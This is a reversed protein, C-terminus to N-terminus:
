KSVEEEESKPDESGPQEDDDGPAAGERKYSALAILGLDRATQWQDPRLLPLIDEWHAQLVSNTGGRSWLDSLAARIQEHTKAGAFAIRWKDREGQFRNKMTASALGKCEDAIAGFRHKLAAHISRVFHKEAEHLTEIMAILGSREEARLAGLTDKPTRYRHL